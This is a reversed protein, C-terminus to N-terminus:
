SKYQKSVLEALIPAAVKWEIGYVNKFAQNFTTGTTAQVILNMASDIGAIAVLAEVTSYGVTYSYERMGPNTKGPSLQDYFNLISAPSFDKITENSPLMKIQNTQNVKYSNLTKNAGIKELLTAHGESFWAPVLDTWNNFDPKRQYSQVVHVFEHIDTEPVQSRDSWSVVNPIAVQIYGQWISFNGASAGMCRKEIPCSNEVQSPAWPEKQKEQMFRKAWDKDSYNYYIATVEDPQKFNRLMNSALAFAATPNIVSPKTNPGVLVTLKYKPQYNSDILLQGKNFVDTSIQDFNAVINDWTLIIPTPTPTPKLTLTPTTTPTPIAKIAVGTNWVLKKGSKICTYVKAQYTAKQKYTKCAVGSNIKQASEANATILTISFALLLAHVIIRRTRM